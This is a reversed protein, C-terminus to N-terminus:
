RGRELYIEIPRDTLAALEPPLAFASRADGILAGLQTTHQALAQRRRDIYAVCDLAFVRDAEHRAALDADKWGWVIYEMLACPARLGDRVVNALDWAAQHDCHPEEALPAWISSPNLSRAWAMLDRLTRDYATQDARYPRGDPWDLFLTDTARVGLVALANLAERRRQAALRTPPWAISGSHSGAGDTLYAVRPRLGLDCATAILGGCGLTEDDAHPSIILM